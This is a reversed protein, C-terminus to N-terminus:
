TAHLKLRRGQHNPIHCNAHLCCVSQALARGELGAHCLLAHSIGVKGWRAQIPRATTTVADHWVGWSGRYVCVQPLCEGLDTTADYLCCVPKSATEGGGGALTDSFLCIYISYFHLWHATPSSCCCACMTYKCVQPLRQDPKPAPVLGIAELCCVSQALM